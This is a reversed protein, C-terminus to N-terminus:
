LGLTQTWNHFVADPDGRFRVQSVTKAVGIFVALYGLSFVGILYLRTRRKMRLRWIIPIPLTAFCIDTFMNCGTNLLPFVRFVEVPWCRATKLLKRDWQAAIPDCFALISIWSEVMYLCIFIMLGWITRTWWINMPGSLRLLSFGVSLKLLCLSTVTTFIAQIFVTIGYIIVDEESLMFVHRGLGHATAVAVTVM